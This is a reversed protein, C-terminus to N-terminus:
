RVVPRGQRFHGFFTFIASFLKFVFKNQASDAHKKTILRIAILYLYEQVFIVTKKKMIKKLCKAEHRTHCWSGKTGGFKKGCKSCTKHSKLHCKMGWRNMIKDCLLCQAKKYRLQRYNDEFSKAKAIPAKDKDPLSDHDSEDESDSFANGKVVKEEDAEKDEDEVEDQVDQIQLFL